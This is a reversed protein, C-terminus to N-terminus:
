AEILTLDNKRYELYKQIAEKRDKETSPEIDWGNKDKAKSGDLECSTVIGNYISEKCISTLEVEGDFIKIYRKVKM